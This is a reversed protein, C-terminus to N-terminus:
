RGALPRVGRIDRADVEQGVAWHEAVDLASVVVHPGDPRERAFVAGRGPTPAYRLPEYLGRERCWRACARSWLGFRQTALPLPLGEVDVAELRAVVEGPAHGVARRAFRLADEVVTVRASFRRREVTVRLETLEDADPHVQLAAEIRTMAVDLRGASLDDRIAARSEALRAILTAEEARAEREAAERRREELLRQVGPRAALRAAADGHSTAAATAESEARVAVDRVRTATARAAEGFATELLAEAQRRVARARASAVDAEAQAVVLADHECLEWLVTARVEEDQEAARSLDADVTDLEALLRALADARPVLLTEAVAAEPREHGRGDDADPPADIGPVDGTGDFEDVDHPVTPAAPWEDALGDVQIGNHGAAADPPGFGLRKALESLDHFVVEHKAM